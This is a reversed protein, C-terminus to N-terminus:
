SFQRENAISIIAKTQDNDKNIAPAKKTSGPDPEKAVFTLSLVYFYM